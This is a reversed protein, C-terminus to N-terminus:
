KRNHDKPSRPDQQQRYLGEGRLHQHIAVERLQLRLEIDGGRLMRRQDGLSLLKGGPVQFQEKNNECCKDDDPLLTKTFVLIHAGFM